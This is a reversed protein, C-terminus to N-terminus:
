AGAIYAYIWVAGIFGNDEFAGFALVNGDNSLSVAGTTIGISDPPIPIATPIYQGNDNTLISLVSGAVVSKLPVAIVSGDFNTCADVVDTPFTYVNGLQTAPVTLSEATVWVGPSRQYQLLAGVTRIDASFLGNVSKSATSRNTALSTLCLDKPVNGFCM